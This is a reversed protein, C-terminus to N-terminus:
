RKKWDFRPVFIRLDFTGDWAVDFGARRLEEVIIRGVEPGKTQEDRANVPSM